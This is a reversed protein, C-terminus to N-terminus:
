QPPCFRGKSAGPFVRFLSSRGLGQAAMRLNRARPVCIEDDAPLETTACSLLVLVGFGGATWFRILAKRWSKM